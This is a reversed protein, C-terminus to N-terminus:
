GFRAVQTRVGGNLRDSLMIAAETRSRAGLKKMVNRVHVKVTSECMNLEYAIIKNAKGRRLGGIVSMQKSTFENGDVGQVNARDSRQTASDRCASLMSAPVYMGGAAVLQLAKVAVELSVTPPIYGSAGCEFVHLIDGISETESLVIVKTDPALRKVHSVQSAVRSPSPMNLLFIRPAGAPEIWTEDFEEVSSLYTLRLKPDLGLLSRGLCDRVLPRDDVIAVDLGAHEVPLKWTGQEREQHAEKMSAIEGLSRVAQADEDRLAVSTKPLAKDDAKNLM